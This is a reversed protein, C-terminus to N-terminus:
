LHVTRESSGRRFWKPGSLIRFIHSVYHVLLCVGAQVELESRLSQIMRTRMVRALCSSYLYWTMSTSLKRTQGIIVNKMATDNNHITLEPERERLTPSLTPTVPAVGTAVIRKMARGAWPVRRRASHFTSLLHWSKHATRSPLGVDM